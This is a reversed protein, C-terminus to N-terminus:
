NSIRLLNAGIQQIRYAKLPYQVDTTADGTFLNYEVGDCPCKALIGSITLVSCNTMAQNPCTAEFAAYGSGTNTVIIGNIGAAANTIRVPNSPFKLQSYLPLDMDVDVSFNYNPLYKNNNNYDDNGCAGIVSVVVLLLLYKKM